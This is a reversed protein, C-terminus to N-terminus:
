FCFGLFAKYKCLLSTLGTLPLYILVSALLIYTLLLGGHKTAIYKLIHMWM